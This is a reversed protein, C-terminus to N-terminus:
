AFSAMALLSWHLLFSGKDKAWIGQFVKWLGMTAEQLSLVLCCKMGLAIGFGMICIIVHGLLFHLSHSIQEIFCASKAM